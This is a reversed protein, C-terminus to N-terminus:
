GLMGKITELIHRKMDLATAPVRGGGLQTPTAADILDHVEWLVRERDRTQQAPHRIYGATDLVAVPDAGRERCGQLIIRIKAATQPDIRTTM